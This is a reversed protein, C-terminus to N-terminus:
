DPRALYDAMTQWQEATLKIRARHRGFAVELEAHSHKMREPPAHCRSCKHAWISSAEGGGAGGADRAPPAGCGLALAALLGLSASARV